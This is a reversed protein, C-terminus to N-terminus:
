ASSRGQPQDPGDVAAPFKRVVAAAIATAVPGSLVALGPPRPAVVWGALPGLTTTFWMDMIERGDSVIREATQPDRPDLIETTLPSLHANELAFTVSSTGFIRQLAAVLDQNIAPAFSALHYSLGAMTQPTGIGDETKSDLLKLQAGLQAPDGSAKSLVSLFRPQMRGHNGMRRLTPEPLGARDAFMGRPGNDLARALARRRTHAFAIDAPVLRRPKSAASVTM